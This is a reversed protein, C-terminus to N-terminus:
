LTTNKKPSHTHSPVKGNPMGRLNVGGKMFFM